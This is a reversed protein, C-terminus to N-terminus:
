KQGIEKFLKEWKANEKEYQEMTLGAEPYWRKFGYNDSPHGYRFKELVKRGDSLLFDFLLLAAHPRSAQAALAVSGSNAPVIEMPLWGVPSGKDISVLAHNRFIHFSGGVEGSAILDVLAASSVTYLKVQQAKLKKVFQEGKLKLMAGIVKFASEGFAIGLKGKLEPNLLGEFGKPVAGSSILTKNYGFGLYSEREVTWFVLGKDAKEKAEEPYKVLHPSYYPRLLSNARSVMMSDHTTELVDFMWRRAKTEEMMRVTL